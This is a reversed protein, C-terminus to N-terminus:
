DRDPHYRKMEEAVNKGPVMVALLGATLLAVVLEMSWLVPMGLTLQFALRGCVTALWIGAGHWFRFARESRSRFLMVTTAALALAGVGATAIGPLATRYAAQTFLGLPVAMLLVYVAYWRPNKWGSM